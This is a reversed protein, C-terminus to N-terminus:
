CLPKQSRLEQGAQSLTLSTIERKGLEEFLKELLDYLKDLDSEDKWYPSGGAMLESSHFMMVIFGLRKRDAIRLLRVFDALTTYKYPRFWLPQNGLYLKRMVTSPMSHYFRLYLRTLQDSKTLPFRTPLITIPMEWLTKGDSNIAHPEIRADSFSMGGTGGPMGPTDSWDVLPTVSSDVLYGHEILVRAVRGDFGYRGSRFSTPRLGFSNEIQRTLNSIKSRLLSDSLETAFPHYRDNFRLGVADDFPPTTWSHLHAGVEADGKRAYERLTEQAFADECVESTVLYTPVVHYRDCLEQLRPVYRINETSLPIGHKWQNDAETDVTLIFKV